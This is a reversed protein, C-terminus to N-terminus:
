FRILLVFGFRHWRCVGQVAGGGGGGGMAGGKRQDLGAALDDPLSSARRYAAAADPLFGHFRLDDALDAPPDHREHREAVKDAVEIADIDAEGRELHVLIEAEGRRHETPAGADKEESIEEEFHRAIQRELPEPRPQPDGPDHHGPAQQRGGHCQDPVSHLKRTTRKRSPAASAPKKGPIM